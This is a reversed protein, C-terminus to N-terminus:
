TKIIIEPDHGGRQSRVTYPYRSGVEISDRVSPSVCSGGKHVAFKRRNRAFPSRSFRVVAHGGECCWHVREGAKKSLYVREPNVRSVRGRAVTITVDKKKAM